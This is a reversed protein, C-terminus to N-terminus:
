RHDSACVYIVRSGILGFNAPFNEGGCFYSRNMIGLVQGESSRVVIGEGEGTWIRGYDDIHIGDQMWRSSTSPYSALAVSVPWELRSYGIIRKNVPFGSDDIDQDYTCSRGHSALLCAGIDYCLIAPSGVSDPGAAIVSARAIGSTDTVCLRSGDKNSRIGNPVLVDAKNLVQTLFKKDM